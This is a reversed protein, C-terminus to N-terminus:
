EEKKESSVEKTETKKTQKKETKLEGSVNKTEQTEEKKVTKKKTKKKVTKKNTKKEAKEEKKDEEKVEKDTEKMEQTPEKLIEVHDPLKIDSPMISVQVGIAGTKLQAVSIAKRVGSVSIDGCKKLYGEYFRWSKARSGPVGRGGILIEIGLAGAGMVEQMTKHGISKFKNAGFRELGSVIKEAIIQADLSPNEVESIEIQPNELGFKKRLTDTLMKINQGKRGVILGPRSAHIIIKDGLPTKQIRTHSHGVRKLTEGIFEQIRYEKLKQKIFSKDTM